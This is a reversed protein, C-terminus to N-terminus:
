KGKETKIFTFSSLIKNFIKEPISKFNKSGTRVLVIYLLQDKVVAIGRIEEQSNWTFNLSHTSLGNIQFYSSGYSSGISGKVYREPGCIIQDYCKSFDEEECEFVEITIVPISKTKKTNVGYNSDYFFVDFLLNPNNTLRETEYDREIALKDTFYEIMFNYKENKYIKLESPRTETMEPPHQVETRQSASYVLIGGHILTLILIGIVVVVFYPKRFWQSIKEKPQEIFPHRARLLLGFLLIYILIYLFFRASFEILFAEMFVSFLGLLFVVFATYWAWKERKSLGAALFLLVLGNLLGQTNSLVSLLSVADGFITQILLLTGFAIGLWGFVKLTGSLIEISRM